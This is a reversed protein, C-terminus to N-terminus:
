ADEPCSEATTFKRADKSGQWWEFAIIGGLAAVGFIPSIAAAKVATLATGAIGTKAAGSLAATADAM